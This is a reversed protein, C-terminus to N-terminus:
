FEVQIPRIEIVSRTSTYLRPYLQNSCPDKILVKDAFPVDFAGLFDNGEVWKFSRTLTNTEEESAGFKLGIKIKDGLPISTDINVNTNYKKVNSTQTNFETSADLEKIEINWINSYETLDWSHIHLKTAGLSISTFDMGKFGNIVPRYYTRRWRIPWVGFTRTNSEHTYSFLDSPKADFALIANINPRNKANDTVSIGIEFNGDTWPVKREGYTWNRNAAQPDPNSSNSQNSMFSFVDNPTGQLQFYSIAETFKGGVYSNTPVAPTLKYYINDRQWAQSVVGDFINHANVLFPSVTNQRGPIYPFPITCSGGGSGGGGSGGFIDDEIITPSDTTISANFNDDIFRLSEGRGTNLVGTSNNFNHKGNDVVLRENNKIVVVPHGPIVDQELVYEFNNLVDIMPVENSNDLRIAVVPVQEPDSTDWLEASFSNEPLEPVFITLLPLQNEINILEAESEFYSLLLDRVTNYSSSGNSKELFRNSLPSNKVFHYMVDYDKNFQKQAEKKILKRL